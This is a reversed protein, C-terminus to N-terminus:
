ETFRSLLRSFGSPLVAILAEAINVLSKRIIGYVISIGVCVMVIIQFAGTTQILTPVALLIAAAVDEPAGDYRIWRQPRIWRGHYHSYVARDSTARWPRLELGGGFADMVSHLSAASVFAAAGVTILTPSLVAALLLVGACVTYWVPFHLTQRHAGYLDFDPFLGGILAGTLAPSAYEPAFVITVSALAMGALTHTTAMM